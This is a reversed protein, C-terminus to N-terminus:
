QVFQSRATAPHVSTHSRRLLESGVLAVLVLVLVFLMNSTSVAFPLWDWLGHITAAWLISGSRWAVWTLLFGLFTDVTLVTWFPASGFPTGSALVEQIHALGFAVNVAVAAGILGIRDTLIRMLVGRYSWEESTGVIGLFGVLFVASTLDFPSHRLSAWVVIGVITAGALLVALWPNARRGLLSSFRSPRAVLVYLALPLFGEGVGTLMMSWLASWAKTGIQQMFAHLPGTGLHIMLAIGIPQLWDFSFVTWLGADLLYVTAALALKRNSSM